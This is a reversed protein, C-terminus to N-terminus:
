GGGIVQGGPDHCSMEIWVIWGGRSTGRRGWAGALKAVIALGRGSLGDGTPQPQWPGGQDQVEVRLTGAALGVRVTFWGDPAGSRSHLVANAALESVCAVADHAVAMDGTIAAVFQRVCQLQAADGAFRREWGRATVGAQGGGAPKSGVESADTGPDLPAAIIFGNITSQGNV